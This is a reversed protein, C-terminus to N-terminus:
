PSAARKAWTWGELPLGQAPTYGTAYSQVAGKGDVLVFTPTGSV